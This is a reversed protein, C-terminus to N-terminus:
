MRRQKTADKEKEQLRRKLEENWFTACIRRIDNVCTEESTYKRGTARKFFKDVESDAMTEELKKIFM